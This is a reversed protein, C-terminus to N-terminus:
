RSTAFWFPMLGWDTPQGTIRASPSNPWSLTSTCAPSTSPLTRTAEAIWSAGAIITTLWQLPCM